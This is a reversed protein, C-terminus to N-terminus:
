FKHMARMLSRYLTQRRPDQARAEIARAMGVDTRAQTAVGLLLDELNSAIPGGQLLGLGTLSGGLAQADIADLQDQIVRTAAVPPPTAALDGASEILHRVAPWNAECISSIETEAPVFQRGLEFTWSWCGLRSFFTDDTAGGATYLIQAVCGPRYNNFASMTKGHAALTAKGPPDQTQFGWPYLILESYSHVSLSVNYRKRTVLALLAKTEEESNAEPGRYVDSGSFSSSGLGWGMEFNRNVDVGVSMGKKARNKRWMTYKTQSYNLGDPNLVPIVTILRTEILTRLAPDTAQGELLKRIVAHPLEMSIWERAHTLGFNLVRPVTTPDAAATIHLAWIDRGEVTKGISELKCLEPYRAAWAELEAQNEAVSHYAGESGRARFSALEDDIDDSLVALDRPPTPETLGVEAPAPTHLAVVRNGNVEVIEYTGSAQLRDLEGPETVTFTVKSTAPRDGDRALVPTSVLVISALVLLAATLSRNM